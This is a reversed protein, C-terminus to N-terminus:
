KKEMASSHSALTHITALLIQLHIGGTHMLADPVAPPLDSLKQLTVVNEIYCEVFSTAFSVRTEKSRIHNIFFAANPCLMKAAHSNAPLDYLSHFNLLMRSLLFAMFEIKHSDYELAAHKHFDEITENLQVVDFLESKLQPSAIYDLPFNGYSDKQQLLTPGGYQLLLKGIEVHGNLLADHLPTVGDVHSLLDVEPCHHLIERVCETSGHNCAEHLPTWGAHDKVNIETGSLSLLLILKKVKNNRCATHLATEGKTNHRSFSQDQDSLPLNEKAFVSASESKRRLKPLVPLDLLVDGQYNNEGNLMLLAKQSELCRQQGIKRKRKLKQVEKGCTGVKCLAPIYTCILKELSLPGPPINVNHKICLNIFIVDAVLMQLWPSAISSIFKEKEEMSFDECPVCIFFALDHAVQYILNKNLYFGLLIWYEVASSLMMNLSSAVEQVLVDDTRYAAKHFKLVLDTLSSLQRTLLKMTRLESWFIRVAFSPLMTRQVFGPCECLRTSLAKAEEQIINAVYKLLCAAVVRINVDMKSTENGVDPSSHCLSLQENLFSRALVEIFPWSGRQCLPCQLFDLYYQVMRSSEWPPHFWLLNYFIDFLRGFCTIDINGQLLNKILLQFVHIPPLTPLLCELEGLAEIFFHGDILGEVRNLCARGNDFSNVNGKKVIRHRKICQHHLGQALCFRKWIMNQIDDVQEFTMEESAGEIPDELLYSGLYQVSHYSKDFNQKERNADFNSQKFFVHTVEEHLEEANCIIAQGARLVREFAERQKQGKDVLIAVKWKRFAGKVGTRTLHERWRKPASQMQPSYPSHREIRYGWEYITEDLWRGRQVSNIVYDKILVWKGASCAALWKESRCPNKAILHTCNEFKETDIFICDLKFLLEVLSEKEKDRFGTFQIIRKRSTVEMACRQVNM